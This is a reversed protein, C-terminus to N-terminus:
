GRYILPYCCLDTGPSHRWAMTCFLPTIIYLLMKCDLQRDMPPRWGCWSPSPACSPPGIEFNLGGCTLTEPYASAGSWTGWTRSPNGWPCDSPFFAAIGPFFALVYSHVAYADGENLDGSWRRSWIELHYFWSTTKGTIKGNLILNNLYNEM